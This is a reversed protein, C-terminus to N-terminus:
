QGDWVEHSAKRVRKANLNGTGVVTAPGPRDRAECGLFLAELVILRRQQNQRVTAQEHYHPLVHM